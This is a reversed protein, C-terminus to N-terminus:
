CMLCHFSGLIGVAANPGFLSSLFLKQGRTSTTWLFRRLKATKRSGSPNVEIGGFTGTASLNHQGSKLVTPVYSPSSMGEFEGPASQPEFM